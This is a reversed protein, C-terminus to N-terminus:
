VATSSLWRGTVRSSAIEWVPVADTLLGDIATTMANTAESYGWSGLAVHKSPCCTWIPGRAPPPCDIRVATLLAVKSLRLYLAGTGEVYRPLQFDSPPHLLIGSSPFVTVSPTSLPPKLAAATCTVESVGFAIEIEPFGALSLLDKISNAAVVVDDFAPTEHKMDVWIFLPCFSDPEGANAVPDISTQM